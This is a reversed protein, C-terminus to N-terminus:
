KVKKKIGLKVHISIHVSLLFEPGENMGEFCRLFPLLCEGARLLAVRGNARKLSELRCAFQQKGESGNFWGLLTPPEFASHGFLLIHLETWPEEDALPVRCPGTSVCCGAM